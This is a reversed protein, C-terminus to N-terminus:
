GSVAEEPGSGAGGGGAKAVEALFSVVVSGNPAATCLSPSRRLWDFRSVFLKYDADSLMSLAFELAQAGRQLEGCKARIPCRQGFCPPTNQM